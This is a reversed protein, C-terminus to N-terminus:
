DWCTYTQQDTRHGFLCEISSHCQNLIELFNVASSKDPMITLTDDVYRKYYMHSHHSIAVSHYVDERFFILVLFTISACAFFEDLAIYETWSTKYTSNTMKWIESAVNKMNGCWGDFRCSVSKDACLVNAKVPITKDLVCCDHRYKWSRHCTIWSRINRDM